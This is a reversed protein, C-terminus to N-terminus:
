PASPSAPSCMMPATTTGPRSCPPGAGGRHASGGARPRSRGWSPWGTARTALGRPSLAFLLVAAAAAARPGGVCGCPARVCRRRVGPAAGRPGPGSTTSNWIRDRVGQEAGQLRPRIEGEYIARIDAAGASSRVYAGGGIRALGSRDEDLRSLVVQGAADKQFGGGELPLRWGDHGRGHRPHLRGAWPRGAAARAEGGHDEGDSLILLARDSEGREGFLEVAVDIGAALDSGAPLRRATEDRKVNARLVDYDLTLPVDPHAGGAALVMGVRDGALIDALDLVERRAREMRDPQVDAAKM